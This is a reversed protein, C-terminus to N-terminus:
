KFRQVFSKRITHQAQSLYREVQYVSIRKIKAIEYPQFRQNVSLDYVSRMPAPLQHLVMDIHQHIDDKSLAKNLKELWKQEPNEEILTDALIYEHKPYSPDEFEELLMLDGDGDTSFNTQMAKWEAQTYNEINEFFSENFEETAMTDELLEDAKKFLWPFLDKEDEVEKIRDFAKLYLEDTFDEVKYKGSPLHGNRVAASLRRAIYGNIEPLLRQMTNNFEAQEDDEKLRILREFSLAALGHLGRSDHSIPERKNKKM